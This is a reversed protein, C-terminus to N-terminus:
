GQLLQLINQQSMNAQALVATAAQQMIQSKALETSAKAYDADMIQSRSAEQNMSVNSLNDMAYQLRNMVAGMQARTANVKDMSEDLMRLVAEAGVRSNIRATRDDVNLDVDGTIDNTISGNKGFDALDITILQQASAGVQFALRGVKPPDMAESSRGGFSGQQFGLAEFHGQTGFGKNGVEVVFPKATAKLLATRDSPPAGVPSPLDPLLASDSILRITGYATKASDSAATADRIATAENTGMSNPTVTALTVSPNDAATVLSAGRLDFPSGAVTSRIELFENATTYSVEVNKLTGATIQANIAVALAAAIAAKTAATGATVTVGNIQVVAQANANTGGVTIRSVQAVSDGKDLGFHAASLWKNNSDFWVSLNRGDTELSVGYGNDVATVGHQGMRANIAEVVKTRRDLGSEDKVFEVDVSTGNVYLTYVAVAATEPILTTDTVMGKSVAGNAQARVGTEHSHSNIAASIALASAARNSSLPVISSKTDDASTSPRIAVGNIVLDDDNLAKSLAPQNATVAVSTVTGATSSANTTLTFATGPNSATLLVEGVARGATATVGLTTNANIATVLADRHGQATTPGATSSFATGNITLTFTDTNAVTGGITVANVQAASVEVRARPATNYVSQNRTFNGEILGSRTIDGTTSTSLVVPNQIKSELSLTSAQVGERVGIRQSFLDENFTTEFDVEINRGDRAVLTIGKSDFGTDIAKVGTRHSIANIAAVVSMRTERTNNLSTTIDASTYGNIRVVGTVVTSADMSQGTMVNENVKAYVGTGAASTTYEQTVDAIGVLTTTGPLIEMVGVDGESVPFDINIVSGGSAYSVIRGTNAEFLHSARLAAAIKAVAKVATDEQSTITVDVGGVKIVGESPVGAFTLSQSEGVTIGQAAAVRNIAAAKAIASGAANSRPSLTDDSAYSAGVDIGNIKLDGARLAPISGEVGVTLAVARSTVAEATDSSDKFTYTLTDTLEGSFVERNNGDSRTFTVTGAARNALGTMIIAENDATTFIATVSTVAATALPITLDLQGSKSFFANGSSFTETASNVADRVDNTVTASLGASSTSGYDISIADVDGDSAAYTFTLTGAGDHTVSRGSSADFSSNATLISAVSAAFATATTVSTFTVPVGAITITGTAPTGTFAVTQQEGGDDGALTRTTTPNILVDGELNVSTAKYVPVEGVREGATGDLVKFGNWETMEAVRVIEQKLQQFELDLYSRDENSNTDNIAQISLERMRQMMNTLEGTAGEATQILSIADGANRVAQNLARIQTTMRTSIALGAADDGATNIRKGTSLQEMSKAQLVGTMRLANQSFLAKTNTNIVAM